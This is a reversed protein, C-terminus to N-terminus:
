ELFPKNLNQIENDDLRESMEELFERVPLLEESYDKYMEKSVLKLVKYYEEALRYLSNEKIDREPLLRHFIYLREITMEYNDLLATIPDPISLTKIETM